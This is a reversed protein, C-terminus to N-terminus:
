ENGLALDTDMIPKWVKEIQSKRMVVDNLHKFSVENFDGDPLGYVLETIQNMNRNMTEDISSQIVDFAQRVLQFIYVSETVKVEDEIMRKLFAVITPGYVNETPDADHMGVAIKDQGAMLKILEFALPVCKADRQHSLDHENANNLVTSPVPKEPLPVGM